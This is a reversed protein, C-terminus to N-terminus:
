ALLSDDIGLYKGLLRRDADPLATPSQRTVYV